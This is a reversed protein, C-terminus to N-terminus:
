HSRYKKTYRQNFDSEERHAGKVYREDMGGVEIAMKRRVALNGAGGDNITCSRGYNRPFFLWGWSKNYSWEHRDMRVEKSNVDIIPGVVGSLAGDDFHSVVNRLYDENEIIVDDDLFLVLDSKARCLGINRARSASKEKERLHVLRDRSSLAKYHGDDTQDIVIIEFQQFSQNFLYSITNELDDYRNITPIVISLDM